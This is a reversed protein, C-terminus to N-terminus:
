IAALHHKDGEVCMCTYGLRAKWDFVVTVNSTGDWVLIFCRGIDMNCAQQWEVQCSGSQGKRETHMWLREDAKWEPGKSLLGATDTGSKWRM